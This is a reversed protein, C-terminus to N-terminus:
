IKELKRMEFIERWPGRKLEEFRSIDMFMDDFNKCLHPEWRSTDGNFSSGYFMCHMNRVNSVDWSSIDGNFKSEYFTNIMNEVNSVDWRSIDGNFSSGYFLCTMDTIQSVDANEVANWDEAKVLEILEKRTIPRSM